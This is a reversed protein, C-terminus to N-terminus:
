NGRARKNANKKAGEEVVYGHEKCHQIIAKDETEAQGNQFRLGFRSGCFAANPTKVIAM